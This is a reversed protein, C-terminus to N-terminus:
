NAGKGEYYWKGNKGRWRSIYKHVKAAQDKLWGHQIYDRYYDPTSQYTQM